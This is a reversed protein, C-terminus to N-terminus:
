YFDFWIDNVIVCVVNCWGNYCDISFCCIYLVVYVGFFGVVLWFDSKFVNYCCDCVFM